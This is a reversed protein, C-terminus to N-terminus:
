NKFNPWLFKTGKSYIVSNGLKFWDRYIDTLEM